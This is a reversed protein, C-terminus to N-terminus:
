PVNVFSLISGSAAVANVKAMGLRKRIGLLGGEENPTANQATALEGPVGRLPNKTLVVGMAAMNMVAVKGRISPKKAPEPM